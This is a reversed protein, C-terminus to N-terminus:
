RPARAEEWGESGERSGERRGASAPPWEVSCLVSLAPCSLRPPRVKLERQGAAKTAAERAELEKAARAAAEAAQEEATGAERRRKLNGVASRMQKETLGSSGFQAAWEAIPAERPM